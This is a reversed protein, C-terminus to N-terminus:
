YDLLKSLGQVAPPEGNAGDFLSYAVKDGVCFFAEGDADINTGIRIARRSTCGEPTVMAFAMALAGVEVITIASITGKNTKKSVPERM